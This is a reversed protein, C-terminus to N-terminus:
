GLGRRISGSQARRGTNSLSREGQRTTEHTLPQPIPQVPEIINRTPERRTFQEMIQEIRKARQQYERHNEEISRQTAAIMEKRQRKLNWLEELEKRNESM